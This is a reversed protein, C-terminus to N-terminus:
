RKKGKKSKAAKPKEKVTAKSAAASADNQIATAQHAVQEAMAKASNFDDNGLAGEAKKLEEPLRAVKGKLADAEAKLGKPSKANLPIKAVADSAASIAMRAKDIAAAVEAKARERAATAEQKAANAGTKVQALLAQAKKYNRSLPFKKGQADIEAKAQALDSEAKSYTELAYAQAGATKAEDLATQAQQQDALPPKACGALGLTCVVAIIVIWKKNM